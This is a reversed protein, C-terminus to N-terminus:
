DPNNDKENKKGKQKEFNMFYAKNESTKVYFYQMLWPDKELQKEAFRKLKKLCKSLKEKIAGYSPYGLELYATEYPVRNDYRAIFLERCKDALRKARNSNGSQAFAERAADLKNWLAEKINWVITESFDFESEWTAENSHYGGSAFDVGNDQINSSVVPFEQFNTSVIKKANDRRYKNVQNNCACYLYTLPNEIITKHNLNQWVSIFVNQTLDSAISGEINKSKILAFSSEWLLKWVEKCAPSDPNRLAEIIVENNFESLQKAM